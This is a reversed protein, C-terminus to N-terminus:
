KNAAFSASFYNGTALRRNGTAVADKVPAILSLTRTRKISATGTLNFLQVVPLQCGAVKESYAVHQLV